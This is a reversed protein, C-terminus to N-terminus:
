GARPSAGPSCSSAARRCKEAGNARRLARQARVVCSANLKLASARDRALAGRVRESTACTRSLIRISTQFAYYVFLLFISICQRRAGRVMMRSAIGVEMGLKKDISIPSPNSIGTDTVGHVDGGLDIRLVENANGGASNVAYKLWDSLLKTKQTSYDKFSITGSKYVAKLDHLANIMKQDGSQLRPIVPAVGAATHGHLQAVIEQAVPNSSNAAKLVVDRALKVVYRSVQSHVRARIRLLLPATLHARLQEKDRLSLKHRNAIADVAHEVRIRAEMDLDKIIPKELAYVIPRLVANNRTDDSEAWDLAEALYTPELQKVMDVLQTEFTEQELEADHVYGQSMRLPQYVEHGSREVSRAHEVATDYAEQESSNWSDAAEIRAITRNTRQITHETLEAPFDFTATLKQKLAKLLREDRRNLSEQLEVRASTHDKWLYPSILLTAALLSFGVGVHVAKM